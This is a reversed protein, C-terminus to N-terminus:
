SLNGPHNVAMMSTNDTVINKIKNPPQPRLSVGKDKGSLNQMFFECLSDIWIHTYRLESKCIFGLIIRIRDDLIEGSTPFARAYARLQHAFDTPVYGETAHLKNTANALDHM